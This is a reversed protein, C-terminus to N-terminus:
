ADKLNSCYIVYENGEDDFCPIFPETIGFIYHRSEFSKVIKGKFEGKVVKYTYVKTDAEENKEDPKAHGILEQCLSEVKKFKDHDMTYFQVEFYGNDNREKTNYGSDTATNKVMKMIDSM